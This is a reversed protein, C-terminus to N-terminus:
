PQKFDASDAAMGTITDKERNAERVMGTYDRIIRGWDIVKMDPYRNGYVEMVERQLDLDSTDANLILRNFILNRVDRDDEVADLKLPHLSEAALPASTITFYKNFFATLKGLVTNKKQERNSAGKGFVPMPPLVKTIAVGTGTVYGDSLSQNMFARTEKPKLGEERIIASLEADRQVEIYKDWEATVDENGPSSPTMRDIFQMILDKKDRLDPSSGIAKQIRAIITKDQCNKDHYQKVLELIYPINIQIQKVLEMEFILDDEISEKEGGRPQRLEDHIDNYWTLYDQCDFDSVIKKEETFEDFASLLNQMKLLGGFLKVFEKKQDLTFTQPNLPLKYKDLLEEAIEKYGPTHKGSDDDFGLYYDSFPRMLVVGAANEDGFLGFSENTAKELNRFCVINGCDKISNLIRNTRSYAQLLGHMKLNKDVWLTNLTKADFGTLFMSVVILLDIERNKMRLSLDKYYNQFKENDTSYKTGFMPNYDEQIVQELFDHSTPDLQDTAAPDEDEITGTDDEGENASYTFITAIRLRDAKPIEEQQRKFEKYYKIATPISDVCFISNFGGLTNKQKKEEEKSSKAVDVVNSIVSYSYRHQQKTKQAFHELIYAVNNTIRQPSAM